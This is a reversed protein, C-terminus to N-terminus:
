VLHGRRTFYRAARLAVDVVVIRQRDRWRIAPVRAAVQCRPLLRVVRRVRRCARCEGRGVARGAVIRNHPRVVREIMRHCAPWQRSRVQRSGADRAVDIVIVVERTRVRIAIAAVGRIPVAGLGEATCYRVVDSQGVRLGLTRGAVVCCCPGVSRKIMSGGAKGQGACMERRSAGQAM